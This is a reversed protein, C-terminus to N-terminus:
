GADRRTFLAASLPVAAASVAAAATLAAYQYPIAGGAVPLLDFGLWIREGMLLRSPLFNYLMDLARSGDFILDTLPFILLVGGLALSVFRSKAGSSILMVAGALYLAGALSTLASVATATGQNWPFPAVAVIWDQWFAEWGVAGYVPLVATLTVGTMLGWVAAATIGGAALKTLALRRRGHKASLLLAAAGCAREGSFLPALAALIVIGVTYPYNSIVERVKGYGRSYNYYARYDEALAGYRALTSAALREGTGGPYKKLYYEALAKGYREANNYFDAAVAPGEYQDHLAAGEPTLFLQPMSRVKEETFGYDRMYRRVIEDTEEEPVRYAPDRLIAADEAAFREAWADTIEGAFYARRAQLERLGAVSVPFVSGSVGDPDTLATVLTLALALLLAAWALRNRLIKKLEFGLLTM